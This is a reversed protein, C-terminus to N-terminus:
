PVFLRWLALERRVTAAFHEIQPNVASRDIGLDGINMASPTSAPPTDWAASLPSAACDKASAVLAQFAEYAGPLEVRLWSLHFLLSEQLSHMRDALAAVTAPEDNVRRRVRFPLELWALADAMGRAAIDRKRDRVAKRQGLFHILVAGFAAIAAAAVTAAAAVYSADIGGGDASSDSALILLNM